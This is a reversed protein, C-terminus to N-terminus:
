KPTKTAKKSTTQSKAKKAAALPIKPQTKETKKTNWAPQTGNEKKFTELLEKQTTKPEECPLWSITVKEIYGENFLKTNIKKNTKGGYGAIYGGFIKKNSNKTKGIYIIDSAPKGTLTKDALVIVCAKNPVMASTLDKLLTFETFNKEKLTSSNM